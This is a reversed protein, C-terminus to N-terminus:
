SKDVGETTVEEADADTIGHERYIHLMSIDEATQIDDGEAWSHCVFQRGSDLTVTTRYLTPDKLFSKIRENTIVMNQERESNCKCMDAVDCQCWDATMDCYFCYNANLSNKQPILGCAPCLPRFMDDLMESIRKMEGM